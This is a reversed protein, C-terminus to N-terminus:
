TGDSPLAISVLTVAPSEFGVCQQDSVGSNSNSARLREAVVSKYSVDKTKNGSICLYLLCLLM